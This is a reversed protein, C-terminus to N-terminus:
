DCFCSLHVLAFRLRAERLGRWLCEVLLIHVETPFLINLGRHWKCFSCYEIVTLVPLLIGYYILKCLQTDTTSIVLVWNLSLFPSYIPNHLQHCLSIWPNVYLELFGTDIEGMGIWWWGKRSDSNGERWLPLSVAAMHIWAEYAWHKRYYSNERYIQCFLKSSARLSSAHISLVDLAWGCLRAPCSMVPMDSETDVVLQITRECFMNWKWFLCFAPSGLLCFCGHIQGVM